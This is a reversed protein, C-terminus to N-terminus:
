KEKLMRSLEIIQKNAEALQTSLTLITKNLDAVVEKENQTVPAQNESFEKITLNTQDLIMSGKGRLLWEASIDSFVNLATWVVETPIGLKCKLMKGFSSGDVSLARAMESQKLGKSTRIKELRLNLEEIM